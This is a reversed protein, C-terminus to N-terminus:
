FLFCGVRRLSHISDGAMQHGSCKVLFHSNTGGRQVRVWCVGPNGGIVGGGDCVWVCAGVCV